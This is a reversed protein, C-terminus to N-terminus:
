RAWPSPPCSNPSSCHPEWATVDARTGQGTARAVADLQAQWNEYLAWHQRGALLALAAGVVLLGIPILYARVYPGVVRGRRGPTLGMDGFGERRLSRVAVAAAAPAFMGATARLQLPVGLAGLGAFCAWALVFAIALFAAVSGWAVRARMAVDPFM